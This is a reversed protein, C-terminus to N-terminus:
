FRLSNGALTMCCPTHLAGIFLVCWTLVETFGAMACEQRLLESMQNMPLERGQTVTSPIQM